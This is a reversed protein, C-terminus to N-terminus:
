IFRNFFIDRNRDRNRNRNIENSDTTSFMIHIEKFNKNNELGEEIDFKFDINPYEDIVKNVCAYIDLLFEYNKNKSEIYKLFDNKSHHQPPNEITPEKIFIEWFLYDSEVLSGDDVFDAFILNLYKYDIEKIESSENFKKLHNM